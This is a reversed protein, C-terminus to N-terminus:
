IHRAHRLLATCGYLGISNPWMIQWAKDERKSEFPKAPLPGAKTRLQEREYGSGIHLVVLVAAELGAPLGSATVQLAEVRDASAGIGM